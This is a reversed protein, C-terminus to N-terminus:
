KAIAKEKNPEVYEPVLLCCGSGAFLQRHAESLVPVELSKRRIEGSWYRRKLDSEYEVQKRTRNLLDDFKVLLEFKPTYLEEVPEGVFYASRSEHNRTLAYKGDIDKHIHEAVSAFLLLKRSEKQAKGLSLPHAKDSSVDFVTVTDGVSQPGKIVDVLKYRCRTFWVGRPGQVVPLMDVPIALAVLASEHSLWEATFGSREEAKVVAVLPLTLILSLIITKIRAWSCSPIPLSALIKM